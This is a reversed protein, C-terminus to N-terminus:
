HHDVKAPQEDEMDKLLRALTVPRGYTDIGVDRRRNMPPKLSAHSHGHLMMAAKGMHHWSHLAYHCLVIRQGGVSVELYEPLFTIRRGPDGDLEMTLPYVEAGITHVEPHRAKLLSSYVQQHCSVHNGLMLYLHGFRLRRMLRMFTAEQDVSGAGVILDGLHFVVGNAPVVANWRDVLAADHEAVSTFGRAAVIWPRNHHMHLDSTVWVEEARAAIKLPKLM